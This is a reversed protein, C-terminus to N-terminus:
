KLDPLVYVCGKYYTVNILGADLINCGLTHFDITEDLNIPKVEPSNFNIVGKYSGETMEYIGFEDLDLFKYVKDYYNPSVDTIHKAADPYAERLEGLSYYVIYRAERM